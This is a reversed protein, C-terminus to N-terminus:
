KTSRNVSTDGSHLLYELMLRDEDYSQQAIYILFQNFIHLTDNYKLLKFM